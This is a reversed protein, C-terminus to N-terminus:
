HFYQEYLRGFRLFCQSPLVEVNKLGKGEFIEGCAYGVMIDTDEVHSEIM